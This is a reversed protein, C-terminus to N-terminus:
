PRSALRTRRAGARAPHSRSTTGTGTVRWSCSRRRRSERRSARVPRRPPEAEQHGVPSRQDPPVRAEDGASGDGRPLASRRLSRRDRRSVALSSVFRGGSERAPRPSDTPAAGTAGDSAPGSPSAAWFPSCRPVLTMSVVLAVAATLALAPGFARFFELEGVLLAATGAVVILGATAVIPTVRITAARAAEVRRTGRSAAATM